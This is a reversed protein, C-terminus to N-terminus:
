GSERAKAVFKLKVGGFSVIDGNKLSTTTISRGNVRTGNTSALDMLLYHGPGVVNLQAHKKSVREHAIVMDGSTRGILMPSKTVRFRKDLYPAETGEWAIELGRMPDGTQSSVGPQPLSAGLDLVTELPAAPSDGPAPQGIPPLRSRLDTGPRPGAPSATEELPTGANELKPHSEAALGLELGAFLGEVSKQYAILDIPLERTRRLRALLGSAPLPVWPKSCHACTVANGSLSQRFSGPLEYETECSPCRIDIFDAAM